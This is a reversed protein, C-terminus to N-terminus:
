EVVEKKVWEEHNPFLLSGQTLRKRQAFRTNEAGTYICVQSGKLQSEMQRLLDLPCLPDNEGVIFSVPIKLHSNLSPDFRTGYFCVNAGFHSEIDRALTEVLRGGGFYFGVITLKYSLGAASFEDLIWKAFIDIDSAVRQPRHKRRWEEFESRPRDKSWPEGRYLDPLLVNYGNCSLRYVFDRTGSDEFGFVDSLLFVAAGNNNKMAKLLYANFSDDVRLVLEVGNVLECVEDIDGGYQM